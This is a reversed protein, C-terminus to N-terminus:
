ARVWGVHGSPFSWVGVTTIVRMLEEHLHELNGCNHVVAHETIQAHESAHAGTDARLQPADPRYVRLVRGALSRVTDAENEFRLDTIVHAGHGNARDDIVRHLLKNTWYNPAQKRRYETGWRQLIWRPSRPAELDHGELYMASVFAGDTCRHIALQTIPQEKQYTHTLAVPDIGFAAHVEARLPDAFALARFGLPELLRACTDKGAGAAGTLAILCRLPRIEPHTPDHLASM